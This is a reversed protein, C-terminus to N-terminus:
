PQPVNKRGSGHISEYYKDLAMTAWNTIPIDYKSVAASYVLDKDNGNKIEQAIWAKREKTLEAIKAKAQKFTQRMDETFQPHKARVESAYDPDTKIKEKYDNYLRDFQRSVSFFRQVDVSKSGYPASTTWSTFSIPHRYLEGIRTEDNVARYAATFAGNLFTYTKAAIGPFQRTALYSAQRPSLEIGMKDFARAIAVDLVGASEWDRTYPTTGAGQQDASADVPTQNFQLDKNLIIDLTPDGITPTITSLAAEGLSVNDSPTSAMAGPSQQFINSGMDAFADPDNHYAYELMAIVPSSFIASPLGIGYPIRFKFGDPQGVENKSEMIYLFNNKDYASKQRWQPNDHWALWNIVSPLTFVMMAKLMFKYQNLPDTMNKTFLKYDQFGPAAFAYMSNIMGLSESKRGFDITINRDLMDLYLDQVKIDHKVEARRAAKREALRSVADGAGAFGSIFQLPVQAVRSAGAWKLPLKTLKALLTNYNAIAALAEAKKAKNRVRIDSMIANKARKWTSHAEGLREYRSSTVQAMLRQTRKTDDDFPNARLVIDSFMSTQEALGRGREIVDSFTNPFEKLLAPYIMGTAQFLSKIWDGPELGKVYEIPHLVSKMGRSNNSHFFISFDFVSRSFATPMDKTLQNLVFGPWHVILSSAMYAVSSIGKWIARTIRETPGSLSAPHIGDLADLLSGDSIIYYSPVGDKWSAYVNRNLATAKDEGMEPLHDKLWTKFKRESIPEGFNYYVLEGDRYEYPFDVKGTKRWKNLQIEREVSDTVPRSEAYKFRGDEDRTDDSLIQTMGMKLMRDPDWGAFTGLANILNQRLEQTTTIYAIAVAKSVMEQLPHEIGLADQTLQKIASNVGDNYIKIAYPDRNALDMGKKLPMYWKGSRKLVDYEERSIMGIRLLPDLVVANQWKVIRKAADAVRGGNEGYKMKLAALSLRAASNMTPDTARNRDRIDFLEGRREAERLEEQRSSALWAWVDKKIGSKDIDDLIPALGENKFDWNGAFESGSLGYVNEFIHKKAFQILGNINHTIIFERTMGLKSFITEAEATSPEIRFLGKASKVIKRWKVEDSIILKRISAVLSQNSTPHNAYDTALPLEMQSKLLRNLNSFFDDATGSRTTTSIAPAVPSGITSMLAASLEGKITDENAADVARQMTGDGSRKGIYLNGAISYLEDEISAFLDNMASNLIKKHGDDIPTGNQNLRIHALRSLLIDKAKLVVGGAADQEESGDEISDLIKDFVENIYGGKSKLNKGSVGLTAIYRVIGDTLIAKLAALDIRKELGEKGEKDLLMSDLTIMDDSYFKGYVGRLIERAEAVKYLYDTAEQDNGLTSKASDFANGADLVTKNYDKLLEIVAPDVDKDNIKLNALDEIIGGGAESVAIMAEGLVKDRATLNDMVDAGSVLAPIVDLNALDLSAGNLQAARLIIRLDPTFEFLRESDQPTLTLLGLVINRLPSDIEQSFVAPQKSIKPETKDVLDSEPALERAIERLYLMRGKQIARNTADSLGPISNGLIVTRVLAQIREHEDDSVQRSERYGGKKVADWANKKIDKTSMLGPIQLQESLEKIAEDGILNAFAGTFIMGHVFEHFLIDAPQFVEGHTILDNRLMLVPFNWAVGETWRELDRGKINVHKNISELRAMQKDRSASDDMKGLMREVRYVRATGLALNYGPMVLKGNEPNRLINYTRGDFVYLGGSFIDLASKGTKEAYTTALANILGLNLAQMELSAGSKTMENILGKPLFSEQLSDATSSMFRRVYYFAEKEDQSLQHFSDRASASALLDILPKGGFTPQWKQAGALKTLGAFDLALRVDSMMANDWQEALDFRQKLDPDNSAITTGVSRIRAAFEIRSDLNDVFRQIDREGSVRDALASMMGPNGKYAIPSNAALERYQAKLKQARFKDYKNPDSLVDLMTAIRLKADAISAFESSLDAAEKLVSKLKQRDTIPDQTTETYQVGGEIEKGQATAKAKSTREKKSRRIVQKDTIKEAKTRGSTEYSPRLKDVIQALRDSIVKSEPSIKDMEVSLNIMKTIFSKARLAGLLRDVRAFSIQRLDSDEVMEAPTKMDYGTYPTTRLASLAFYAMAKMARNAANTSRVPVEKGNKGVFHSQVLGKSGLAVMLPQERGDLIVPMRLSFGSDEPQDIRYFESAMTSALIALIGKAWDDQRLETALDREGSFRHTMDPSLTSNHSLRDRHYRAIASQYIDKAQKLLRPDIDSVQVFSEESAVAGIKEQLWQNRAAMLDQLGKNFMEQARESNVFEPDNINFRNSLEEYARAFNRDATEELKRVLAVDTQTSSDEDGSLVKYLQRGIILDTMDQSTVDLQDGYQARRAAEESIFVAAELLLDSKDVTDNPLKGEARRQLNKKKLARRYANDYIYRVPDSGVKGPLLSYISGTFTDRIAENAMQIAQEGNITRLYDESVNGFERQLHDLFNGFADTLVQKNELTISKSASVGQSSNQVAWDLYPRILRPHNEAFENFLRTTELLGYSRMRKRDYGSFRRKYVGGVAIMRRKITDILSDLDFPKGDEGIKLGGADVVSEAILFQLAAAAEAIEGGMKLIQEPPAKIQKGALDSQVREWEELADLATVVSNKQLANIIDKSIEEIDEQTQAQSMRTELETFKSLMRSEWFQRKADELYSARLREDTIREHSMSKIYNSVPGSDQSSDSLKIELNRLASELSDKYFEFEYNGRAEPNVIADFPVTASLKSTISQITSKLAPDVPLKGKMVESIQNPNLSADRLATILNTIPDFLDTGVASNPVIVGKSTTMSNEVIAAATDIRNNFGILSSEPMMSKLYENLKERVVPNKIYELAQALVETPVESLAPRGKEGLATSAFADLDTAVQMLKKARLFHMDSVRGIEDAVATAREFSVIGEPMAPIDSNDELFSSLYSYLRVKWLDDSSLGEKTGALTSLESQLAILKGKIHSTLPKNDKSVFYGTGFNTLANIHDTIAAELNAQRKVADPESAIQNISQNFRRWTDRIADGANNQLVKEQVSAKAYGEQEELEILANDRAKGQLSASILHRLSDRVSDRQSRTMTKYVRPDYVTRVAAGVVPISSPDVAGYFGVLNTLTKQIANIGSAVEERSALANNTNNRITIINDYLDAEPNGTTKRVITDAGSASAEVDANTASVRHKKLEEQDEYLKLAYNWQDQVEAVDRFKRAWNYIVRMRFKNLDDGRETVGRLALNLQQISNYVKDYRKKNSNRLDKLSTLAGKMETSNALAHEFANSANQEIKNAIFNSGKALTHTGMVGLPALAAADAAEQLYSGISSYEKGQTANLPAEKMLKSAVQQAAETWMEQMIDNTFSYGDKAMAALAKSNSFHRFMRNGTYELYASAVGSTIAPLAARSLSLGNDTLYDEVDVFERIGFGVAAGGLKDGIAPAYEALRATKATSAALTKIIPISRAANAAKTLAKTGLLARGGWSAVKGAGGFAYATLVSDGGISSMAPILDYAGAEFIKNWEIPADEKFVSKLFAKSDHLFEAGADGGSNNNYIYSSVTKDFEDLMSDYTDVDEQDDVIKNWLKASQIGFRTLGAAAGQFVSGVHMAFPNHHQPTFGFDLPQLTGVSRDPGWGDRQNLGYKAGEIGKFRIEGTLKNRKFSGFDEWLDDEPTQNLLPSDL